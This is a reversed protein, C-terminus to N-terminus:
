MHVDAPFSSGTWFPMYGYYGYLGSYDDNCRLERREERQGLAAGWAASTTM